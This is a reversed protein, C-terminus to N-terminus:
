EGERRRYEKQLWKLTWGKKLAEDVDIQAWKEAETQHFAGEGSDRRQSYHEVAIELKEPGRRKSSGRKRLPRNRRESEAKTQQNAQHFLKECIPKCFRQPRRRKTDGIWFRGCTPCVRLLPHLHKQNLYFDAFIGLLFQYPEQPETRPYNRDRYLKWGNREWPITDGFKFRGDVIFM